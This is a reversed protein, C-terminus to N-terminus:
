LYTPEAQELEMANIDQHRKTSMYRDLGFHKMSVKTKHRESSTDWM